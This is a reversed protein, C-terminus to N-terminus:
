DYTSDENNKSKEEKVNTKKQQVDKNVDRIYDSFSLEVSKKYQGIYGTYRALISVLENPKQTFFAIDIRESRFFGKKIMFAFELIITYNNKLYIKKVNKWPIFNAHPENNDIQNYILGETTLRYRTLFETSDFNVKELASLQERIDSFTYPVNVSLLTREQLTAIKKGLDLFKSEIIDLLCEFEGEPTFVRMPKTVKLLKKYDDKQFEKEISRFLNKEKDTYELLNKEIDLPTFGYEPDKIANVCIEDKRVPDLVMATLLSNFKTLESFTERDTRSLFASLNPHTHIWCGFSLLDTEQYGEAELNDRLKSVAVFFERQFQCYVSNQTRQPPIIAVTAMFTGNEMYKGLLVGGWETYANKRTFELFREYITRDIIFKKTIEKEVQIQKEEATINEM